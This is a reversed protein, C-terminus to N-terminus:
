LSGIAVFVAMDEGESNRTTVVLLVCWAALVVWYGVDRLANRGLRRGVLEGLSYVVSAAAGVTGFLFGIIYPDDSHLPNDWDICLAVVFWIVALASFVRWARMLGGGALGVWEAQKMQMRNGGRLGDVECIRLLGGCM